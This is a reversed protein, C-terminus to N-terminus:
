TTRGCVGRPAPGNATPHGAALHRHGGHELDPLRAPSDPRDGLSRINSTVSANRTANSALAPPAHYPKNGSAPNAQPLTACLLSCPLAGQLAPGLPHVLSRRAHGLGAPGAAGPPRVAKATFAAPPSASEDALQVQAEEFVPVAIACAAILAIATALRSGSM